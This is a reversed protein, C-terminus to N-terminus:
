NGKGLAKSVKKRREQQYLQMQNECFALIVMEIDNNSVPGYHDCMVLNYIRDSVYYCDLEQYTGKEVGSLKKPEAYLDGLGLTHGFEHKAIARIEEYDDFRGSKDQLLITKRSYPTWHLGHAAASRGSQLLEQVQKQGKSTNLVDSTNLIMKKLRNTMVAVNVCDFIRGETTLELEVTLKQGGFVEYEGAWDRIGDLVAKEFAEQNELADTDIFTIDASLTLVNRGDAFALRVDVPTFLGEKCLSIQRGEFDTLPHPQPPAQKTGFNAEYAELCLANLRTRAPVYGRDASSLLMRMASERTKEDKTKVVKILMLEALLYQAEADHGKCALTLYEIGKKTQEKGESSQLLVKAKERFLAARATIEEQNM